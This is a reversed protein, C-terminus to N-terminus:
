PSVVPKVTVNVDAFRRRHVPVQVYLLEEAGGAAASGATRVSAVPLAHYARSVQFATLVTASACFFQVCCLM